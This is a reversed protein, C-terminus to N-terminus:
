GGLGNARYAQLFRRVEACTALIQQRHRGRGRLMQWGLWARRGVAVLLLLVLPNLFWPTGYCVEGYALPGGCPHPQGLVALFDALTM